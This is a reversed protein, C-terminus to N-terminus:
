EANGMNEWCGFGVVKGSKGLLWVFCLGLVFVCFFSFDYWMCPWALLWTGIPKDLRALRAYPRAQKPLYLDIWSVEAKPLRSGGDKDEESNSSGRVSTSIHAVSKHVWWDLKLNDRSLDSVPTCRYYQRFPKHYDPSPDPTPTPHSSVPLPNLISRSLSVSSSFLSPRQLRRSARAVRFWAM